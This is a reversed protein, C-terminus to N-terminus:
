QQPPVIFIATAQPQVVGGSGQQGPQGPLMGGTLFTADDPVADLTLIDVPLGGQTIVLYEVAAWGEFIEHNSAIYTVHVWTGDANRGNVIVMEGSPVARVVRGDATPRNRLNLNAGPDLNVVGMVAQQEPPVTPPQSEAEYYGAEEPSVEDVVEELVEVEKDLQTVQVYEMSVWGITASGDEKVYRVRLWRPDVPQGVLGESPVKAYGLVELQAGAPVRDLVEADTKPHRRLQLSVGPDLNVTALVADWQPTPPTVATDVAEGPNNFPEEPLEWLEELKDLLQGNFEVRLFQAAVWCRLYGGEPTDWQVSLWLDEITEVVPTPEPTPNGTEPVLPEGTRGIVTVTTGSPILGLSRADSRPYERCHLNAGPNLEVVAVPKPKETVVPLPAQTPPAETPAEVVESSAGPEDYVLETEIPQEPQPEVAEPEVAEPQPEVAEPQPEVAEAEPQPEAAEPQPEVAEAEVAEPQPEVAEAEVAEPQAEAVAAEAEPQAEAEVAEPEAAMAPVAGPLSDPTVNVDTGAVRADYAAGATGGGYVLVSYYTGGIYSQAPVAVSVPTDIGELSVTLMYDGVPVYVPEGQMNAALASALVTADPDSLAVTTTAGAVANVVSIRASDAAMDAVADPFVELALSGDALEGLAVVTVAPTDAAFTVDTTVAAPDATTTGAPRLALTHDGQPFPIHGSMQGLELGPVLLIDDAYVDVASADPSAHAFRVRLDTATTNLPTPLTIVSPAVDGELTGLAVFTYLTGSQLKVQGISAVVSEPAGGAPVMALDQLGANINITGYQIGYSVGQFLPGGAATLVDLPPADAITNFATLRAMGPAIEDLVDEYFAMELADPGGQVVLTYALGPPLAIPGEVLAPSDPGTRAPRVAVQHEGGTVNMHPTADTFGMGPVVLAGDLYVDVAPTGPVAHLFRLRAMGDQAQAAGSNMPGVLALAVAAMLLCTLVWKQRNM